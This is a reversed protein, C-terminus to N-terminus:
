GRRSHRDGVDPLHTMGTSIAADGRARRTPGVSRRKVRAGPLADAPARQRRRNGRARLHRPTPYLRKNARGRKPVGRRMSVAARGRFCTGGEGRGDFQPPLPARPPAGGSSVRLPSRLDGTLTSSDPRVLKSGIQSGALSATPSFDHPDHSSSGQLFKPVPVTIRLLRQLSPERFGTSCGPSRHGVDLVAVRM